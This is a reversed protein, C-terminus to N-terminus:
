EPERVAYARFWDAAPGAAARLAGPEEFLHTAGAVVALRSVCRLRAQAARNLDLVESDREGAVLLTPARVAGLDAAGLGPEGGLSVVAAIPADPVAAACLAVAAGSGAGLLGIPLGATEPRGRVWSVAGLLRSPAPVPDLRLTGLGAQHLLGALVQNRPSLRSSARDPAFVVVARPGPPVHLRGAVRTQGLTVTVEEARELLRRVEEDAIPTFDDYFWGVADFAAPRLLCVVQDAVDALGEVAEPAGVPAAVVVRAAGQARAVRCAARATAGTAIGDDVVVATRGTLPIRARLGRLAKVRDDVEAAAAAEAASLAEPPVGAARVIASHIIRVGDEGVAGMALEPQRPVGVKRVVIVDLPAQLARAVAFAVPVGGRPLGLVVTGGGRLGELRDALRHGAEVRNRFGM